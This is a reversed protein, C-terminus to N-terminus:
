GTNPAMNQWQWVDLNICSSVCLQQEDGMEGVTPVACPLPFREGEGSYIHDLASVPGTLCRTLIWM